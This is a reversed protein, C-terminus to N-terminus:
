TRQSGLRRLVSGVLYLSGTVLIKAGLPANSKLLSFADEIHEATAVDAYGMSLLDDALRERAIMALGSECYICVTKTFLGKLPQYFGAMDKKDKFATVLYVPGQQRWQQIVPKLVEAGSDNHAGDLWVEVAASTASIKQLRGPWRVSKMATDIRASTLINAFPSQEVAALATAANVIQHDGALAPRPLNLFERKGAYSFVDGSIHCTWDLGHKFVPSSLHQAQQLFVDIVSADPQPAITVPLGRKIIGAKETAIQPLTEGLIRMHDFSIRTLISVLNEQVVNTADLRGGLGTELLVADAKQESFFLFALATFIEFFTPRLAAPLTEAARIVLALKQTLFDPAVDRGSLVIREEFRVLHPSTYKHAM